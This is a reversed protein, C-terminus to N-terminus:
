RRQPCRWAARHPPDVGPTGGACSDRLAGGTERAGGAHWASTRGNRRTPPIPARSTGPVRASAKDRRTKVIKRRTPKQEVVREARQEPDRNQQEHAMPESLADAIEGCEQSPYCVCTDPQRREGNGQQDHPERSSTLFRFERSPCACPSCCCGWCRRLRWLRCTVARGIQCDGRGCCCYSSSASASPVLLVM